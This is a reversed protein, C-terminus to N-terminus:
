TGCLGSIPIIVYLNTSFRKREKGRKDRILAWLVGSRGESEGEREGRKRGSKSERVRGKGIREREERRRKKEERKKKRKEERMCKALFYLDLPLIIFHKM